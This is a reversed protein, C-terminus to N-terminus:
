EAFCLVSHNWVGVRLNQQAHLQEFAGGGIVVAALVPLGGFSRLIQLPSFM